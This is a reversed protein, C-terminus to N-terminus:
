GEVREIQISCYIKFGYLCVSHTYISGISRHLARLCEANLKVQLAAIGQVLVIRTCSLCEKANPGVTSGNGPCARHPHLPVCRQGEHSLHWTQLVM